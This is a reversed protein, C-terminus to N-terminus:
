LEYSEFNKRVASDWKFLISNKNEIGSEESVLLIEEDKM